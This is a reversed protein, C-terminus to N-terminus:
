RRDQVTARLRRWAYWSVGLLPAVALLILPQGRDYALFSIEVAGILCLLM